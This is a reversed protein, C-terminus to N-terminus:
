FSLCCQIGSHLPGIRVTPCSSQCIACLLSSSLILCVTYIYESSSRCSRCQAGPHAPNKYLDTQYFSRRRRTRRNRHLLPSGLGVLVIPELTVSISTVHLPPSRCCGFHCFPPPSSHSQCTLWSYFTPFRLSKAFANLLLVSVYLSLIWTDLDFFYSWQFATLLM